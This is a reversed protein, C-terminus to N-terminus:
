VTKSYLNPLMTRTKGVERLAMRTLKYDRPTMVHRSQNAQGRALSSRKTAGANVVRSEAMNMERWGKPADIAPGKYQGSLM